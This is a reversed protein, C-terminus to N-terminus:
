HDRIGHLGAHHRDHGDCIGGPEIQHTLELFSVSGRWHARSGDETGERGCIEKKPWRIEREVLLDGERGGLRTTGEFETFSGLQQASIKLSLNVRTSPAARYVDIVM